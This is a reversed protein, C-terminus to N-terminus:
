GQPDDAAHPHESIVQALPVRLRPHLYRDYSERDSYGARVAEWYAAWRTEIEPRAVPDAWSM